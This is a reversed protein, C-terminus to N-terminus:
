GMKIFPFRWMDGHLRNCKPFVLIETTIEKLLHTKFHNSKGWSLLGSRGPHSFWLVSISATVAVKKIIESGGRGGNGCIINLTSHTIMNQAVLGIEISSIDKHFKNKSGHWVVHWEFILTRILSTVLCPNDVKCPWPQKCVVGVVDCRNPIMLGVWGMWKIITSTSM